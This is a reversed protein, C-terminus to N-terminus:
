PVKLGAAAYLEAEVSKAFGMDVTFAASISASKKEEVAAFYYISKGFLTGGLDVIVSDAM